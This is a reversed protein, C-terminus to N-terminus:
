AIVCCFCILFIKCTSVKLKASFALKGLRFVSTSLNSISLNTGIGTAKLLNLSTTFIMKNFFM